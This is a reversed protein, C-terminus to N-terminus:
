GPRMQKIETVRPSPDLFIRSCNIDFLARRTDEELAKITDLRDNLDKIWKPNAKSCPTLSHETNMKGVNSDERLRASPSQTEEETDNTGRQQPSQRRQTMQGVNSPPSHRRRQTAKLQASERTDQKTEPGQQICLLEERTSDQKSETERRM